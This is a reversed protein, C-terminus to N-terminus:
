EERGLKVINVVSTDNKDPHYENALEYFKKKIEDIEANKEVGLIYYPDTATSFNFSKGLLLNSKRFTLLKFM